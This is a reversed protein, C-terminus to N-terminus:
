MAVTLVGGGRNRHFYTRVNKWRHTTHPVRGHKCLILGINVTTFWPTSTTCSHSVSLYFNHQKLKTIMSGECSHAGGVGTQTYILVYRRANMPPTLYEAMNVSSKVMTFWTTCTTCGQSVSLNFNHCVHYNILVKHWGFASHLCIHSAGSNARLRPLRVILVVSFRRMHFCHIHM